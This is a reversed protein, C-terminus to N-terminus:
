FVGATRIPNEYFASSPNPGSKRQRTAKCEASVLIINVYAFFLDINNTNKM